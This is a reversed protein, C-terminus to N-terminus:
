FATESNTTPGDPEKSKGGGCDNEGANKGLWLSLVVAILAGLNALDGSMKDATKRYSEALWAYNKGASTLFDAGLAALKHYNDNHSAYRTQQINIGTKDMTAASGFRGNRQNEILEGAKFLLGENIQWARAREDERAKYM